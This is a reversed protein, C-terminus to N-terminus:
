VGLGGVELPTGFRELFALETLPRRDKKRGTIKRSPYGFGVVVTPNLEIPINFDKRLEKEKVGTFICSVVGYNWAALQMDQIVRGADIAHFAYKPNTLVIIAFNAGAVWKGWDSDEALRRLSDPNLVLIFRWHQSNVGSATLRAAELIKLRVEAPVAKSSYERVDLKTLVCEYADMWGLVQRGSCQRNLNVHHKYAFVGAAVPITRYISEEM